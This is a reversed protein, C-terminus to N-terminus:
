GASSPLDSLDFWGYHLGAWLMLPVIVLYAFLLFMRLKRYFADLDRGKPASASAPDPVSVEVKVGGLERTV